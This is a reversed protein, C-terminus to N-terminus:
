HSEEPTKPKHVPEVDLEGILGDVEDLVKEPGAVVLWREQGKDMMAPVAQYDLATLV